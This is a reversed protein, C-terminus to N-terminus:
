ITQYCYGKFSDHSGIWVIQAEKNRINVIERSSQSKFQCAFLAFFFTNPSLALKKLSQLNRSKMIQFSGSMRLLLRHSNFSLLGCLLFVSRCGVTLVLKSKTVSAGQFYGSWNFNVHRFFLLQSLVEINTQSYLNFM